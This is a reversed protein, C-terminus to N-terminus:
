RGVERTTVVRTVGPQHYETKSNLIEDAESYTILVGERVQRDLCSRFTGEVKFSFATPDLVSEPHKIQLHKPMRATMQSSVARTSGSNAIQLFIESTRIDAPIESDKEIESKVIEIKGDILRSGLPLARAAMNGDVYILLLLLIYAPLNVTAREIAQKFKRAWVIM